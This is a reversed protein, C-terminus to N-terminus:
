SCAFVQSTASQTGVPFFMITAHTIQQSSPPPSLLLVSIFRGSFGNDDDGDEERESIVRMGKMMKRQLMTRRTGRLGLGFSYTLEVKINQIEQMDYRIDGKTEQAPIPPLM